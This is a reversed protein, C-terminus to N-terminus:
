SLSRSQIQKVVDRPLSVANDNGDKVGYALSGWTGNLIAHSSWDAISIICDAFDELDGIPHGMCIKQRAKETLERLRVHSDNVELEEGRDIILYLKEGRLQLKRCTNAFEAAAEITDFNRPVVVDAHFNENQWITVPRYTNSMKM